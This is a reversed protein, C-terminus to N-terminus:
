AAQSLPKRAVGWSFPRIEEVAEFGLRPLILDWVLRVPKAAREEPSFQKALDPRAQYAPSRDVSWDMDDLVLLGGPKLLMDVLVVGLGTADWLHSGDFYCFDFVPRPQEALMGQLEWTYSRYAFRTTARHSLGAASLLEAVNPTRTQANTKDVTVLHGAGQDELIAALYAASKGHYTGIELVHEAGAADILERMRAAQAEHMFPVDGFRETVEDFKTM